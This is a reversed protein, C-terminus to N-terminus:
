RWFAPAAKALRRPVLGTLSSGDVVSEAGHIRDFDNQGEGVDSLRVMGGEDDKVDGQLSRDPGQVLAVGNEIVIIRRGRGVIVARFGVFDEGLDEDHGTMGQEIQKAM